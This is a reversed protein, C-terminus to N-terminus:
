LAKWIPAVTTAVFAVAPVCAAAIGGGWWSLSRTRAADVEAQLARFREVLFATDAPEAAEVGWTAYERAAATIDAIAAPSLERRRQLFRYLAAIRLVHTSQRTAGLAISQSNSVVIVPTIEVRSGVASSLLKSARAVDRSSAHLHDKNRADILFTRSGVWVRSGAHNKTDIAFVGGPGIVLHDLVTARGGGTAGVPIAHLVTWESGLVTLVGAVALEGLGGRYWSRAEPLLPSAGFLRALSGRPSSSAQVWL